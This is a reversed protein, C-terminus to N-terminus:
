GALDYSNVVGWRKNESLRIVEVDKADPALTGLIPAGADPQTRINLTDGQALGTVSYLVPLDQATAPLALLMLWLCLLIV